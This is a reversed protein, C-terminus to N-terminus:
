GSSKVQVSGAQDDEYNANQILGDTPDAGHNPIMEFNENETQPQQQRQRKEKENRRQPGIIGIPNTRIHVETLICSLMGM